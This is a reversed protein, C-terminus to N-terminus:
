WWWVDDLPTVTSKGFTIYFNDDYFISQHEQRPMYNAPTVLEIWTRMDESYWYDDLDGTPGDGGTLLVVEDDVVTVSHNTREAYPPFLFVEESWVIGDSSSWIDNARTANVLGGLIWM